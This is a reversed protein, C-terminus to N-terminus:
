FLWPKERPLSSILHTGILIQSKNTLADIEIIDLGCALAIQFATIKKADRERGHFLVPMFNGNTKICAQTKAILDQTTSPLAQGNKAGLRDLARPIDEQKVYNAGGGLMYMVRVGDMGQALFSASVCLVLCFLARLIM